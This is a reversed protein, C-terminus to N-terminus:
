KGEEKQEEKLWYYLLNILVCNFNNSPFTKEELLIFKEMKKDHIALQHYL